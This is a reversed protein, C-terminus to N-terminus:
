THFSSAKALTVILRSAYLFPSLRSQGSPRNPTYKSNTGVFRCRRTCHSRLQGRKCGRRGDPVHLGPFLNDRAESRFTSSHVLTSNYKPCNSVDFACSGTTEDILARLALFLAFLIIIGVWGLWDFPKATRLSSAVHLPQPARVDDDLDMHLDLEPHDAQGDGYQDMHEDVQTRPLPGLDWERIVQSQSAHARVTAKAKKAPPIAFDNVFGPLPAHPAKSAPRKRHNPSPSQAALPRRQLRPTSPVDWRPLQSSSALAQSPAPVRPPAAKRSSEMELQKFVLQTRLRELEAEQKKQAAVQAAELSEKAARLKATEENHM